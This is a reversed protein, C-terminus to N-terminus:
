LKIKREFLGIKGEIRSIAKILHIDLLAQGGAFGLLIEEVSVSQVIGLVKLTLYVIVLIVIILGVYGLIKDFNM